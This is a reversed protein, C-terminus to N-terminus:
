EYRCRFVSASLALMKVGRIVDDPWDYRTVMSLIPIYFDHLFNVAKGDRGTKYSNQWPYDQLILSFPPLSLGFMKRFFKASVPWQYYRALCHPWFLEICYKQSLNSLYLYAKSFFLM